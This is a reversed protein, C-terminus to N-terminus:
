PTNGPYYDLETFYLTGDIYQGSVYSGVWIDYQGEPPGAVDVLPNLGGYPSDDNCRWRGQPDNVILTTDESGAAVFFIRLNSSSGSWHLRYDPPSSAYGRCFDSGLNQANVDVPGGSVVPVTQPDPVFGARLEMSGYNPEGSWNLTEGGVDVPADTPVVPVQTAQPQTTPRSTGGDGGGCSAVSLLMVAVVFLVVMRRM